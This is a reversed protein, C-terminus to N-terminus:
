PRPGSRPDRSVGELVVRYKDWDTAIPDRFPDRLLERDAATIEAM